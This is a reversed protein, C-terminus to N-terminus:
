LDPELEQYNLHPRWCPEDGANDFGYNRVFRNEDM